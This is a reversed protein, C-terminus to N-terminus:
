HSNIFFPSLAYVNREEQPRWSLDCIRCKTCSRHKPRSEGYIQHFSHPGSCWSYGERKKQAKRGPKWSRMVATASFVRLASSTLLKLVGRREAYQAWSLPPIPIQHKKNKKQQHPMAAPFKDRRNVPMDVQWFTSSPICLTLHVASLPFFFPPIDTKPWSDRKFDRDPLDAAFGVSMSNM